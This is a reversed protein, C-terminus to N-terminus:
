LSTLPLSDMCSLPTHGALGLPGYMGYRYILLAAKYGLIIIHQGNAANVCEQTDYKYVNPFLPLNLIEEKVSLSDAKGHRFTLWKKKWCGSASVTLLLFYACPLM